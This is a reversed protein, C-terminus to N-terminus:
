IMEKLEKDQMDKIDKTLIRAEIRPFLLAYQKTYKIATSTADRDLCVIINYERLSLAVDKSFHSGLLAVSNKNNTWLKISSIPDEVIYLTKSIWYEINYFAFPRNSPYHLVKPKIDINNNLEPYYRCTYGINYGQIGIVPICVRKLEKSWSFNFYNLTEELLNYKKYFFDKHEETLPSLDHTFTKIKNQKNSKPCTNESPIFGSFGCSARFCHYIIGAAIRSVSFDNGAKKCNPCTFGRSSEGIGLGACEILLGRLNTADNNTM